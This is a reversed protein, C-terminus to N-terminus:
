TTKDQEHTQSLTHTSHMYKTIIYSSTTKKKIIRRGGLDVRVSVSKGSGVSKREQRTVIGHVTALGLGTGRAAARTTFFPEFIRDMVAADIGHGTDTVTLLDSSCVDSSWDSIRM